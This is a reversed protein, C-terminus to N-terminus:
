TPHSKLPRQVRRVKVTLNPTQEETTDARRRFFILAEKYVVLCGRQNECKTKLKKVARWHILKGRYNMLSVAIVAM